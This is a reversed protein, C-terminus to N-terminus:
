VAFSILKRMEVRTALPWRPSRLCLRNQAFYLGLVHVPNQENQDNPKPKFIILGKAGLKRGQVLARQFINLTYTSLESLVVMYCITAPGVVLCQLCYLLAYSVGFADFTLNM